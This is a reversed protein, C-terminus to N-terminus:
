LKSFDMILKKWCKMMINQGWIFSRKAIKIISGDAAVIDNQVGAIRLFFSMQVNIANKKWINWITKKRSSKLLLAPTSQIVNWKVNQAANCVYKTKQDFKPEDSRRRRRQAPEEKLVAKTSCYKNACSLHYKLKLEPDNELLPALKMHLTDEWIIDAKIISEIRQKDRNQSLPENSKCNTEYYSSFICEKMEKNCFWLYSPQVFLM